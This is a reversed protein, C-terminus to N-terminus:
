LVAKVYQADGSDSKKELLNLKEYLQIIKKHSERDFFIGRKEFENILTNLKIKEKDKICVKTILIIDEETMNLNFGLQGRRKAFNNQLFKLYWNYYSENLKSRGSKEFQYRVISFLEYVKEFGNVNSDRSIFKFQDWAVDKIQNKYVEILNVLQTNLENEDMSNFIKSLGKYDLINETNNYNLLELVVAHSFLSKINNKIKELGFQYATRNKSTKEWDLTYYLADPKSLDACEFQNLKMVLQSVYYNYYYELLRKFSNRYLEENTIIFKFDEIFKDRVYPLYCEYEGVLIETDDLKPLSKLVLKYLLNDADKYYYNKINKKLEADMLISYLFKAIKTESNNAQIYNITKIDFDILEGNHIFMTKVIDKFYEKSTDGRFDAIQDIIEEIFDDLNFKKNIKKDCIMRSFAGIVGSFESILTKDNAVYPLLKIKKGINHTLGSKGQIPETTFKFNIKIEDFNINFKNLEEM